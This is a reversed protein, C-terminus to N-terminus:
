WAKVIQSNNSQSNIKDKQIGPNFGSPLVGSAVNKSMRLIIKATRNLTWLMM